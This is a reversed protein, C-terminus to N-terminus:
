KIHKAHIKENLEWLIGILRTILAENWFHVFKAMSINPSKDFTMCRAPASSVYLGLWSLGLGHYLCQAKM